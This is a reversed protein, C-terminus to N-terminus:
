TNATDAPRADDVAEVLIGRTKEDDGLGVLRVLSQAIKKGGVPLVAPQLTRILCHNPSLRGAAFPYNGGGEAAGRGIPLFHRHPRRAPLGYGMVPNHFGKIKWTFRGQDFTPELGPASMLNANMETVQAMGQKAVRQVAFSEQRAGPPEGLTWPGRQVIEASLGKMGTM